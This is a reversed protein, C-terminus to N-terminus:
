PIIELKGLPYHLGELISETKGGAFPDHGPVHADFKEKGILRELMQTLGENFGTQYSEEELGFLTRAQSNPTWQIAM